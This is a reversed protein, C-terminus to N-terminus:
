EKLEPPLSALVRDAYNVVAGEIIMSGDPLEGDQLFRLAEVLVKIHKKLESDYATIAALVECLENFLNIHKSDVIEGMGSDAGHEHVLLHYCGNLVNLLRINLHSAQGETVAELTKGTMVEGKRIKRLHYPITDIRAIILSQTM